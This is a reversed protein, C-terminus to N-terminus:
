ADAGDTNHATRPAIAAGPSRDQVSDMQADPKLHTLTSPFSAPDFRRADPSASSRTENAGGSANGTSRSAGETASPVPDGSADLSAEVQDVSVRISPMGAPQGPES